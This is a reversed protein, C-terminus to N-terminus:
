LEASRARAATLEAYPSLAIDYFEEPTMSVDTVYQNDPGFKLQKQIYTNALREVQEKSLTKLTEGWKEMVRKNSDMLSINKEAIDEAWKELEDINEAMKKGAELMF